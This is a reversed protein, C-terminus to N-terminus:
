PFDLERVEAGSSRMEEEAVHCAVVRGGSEVTRPPVVDCLGKVAAPCRPHFRCGAPPHLPSPVDGQLGAGGGRATPDLKPVAELLARTYPHLPRAYLEAAPALEVISGLYMVAVRDCLHEVVSLDHSIFLYAIGFRRKLDFLLNLVQAQVSVDLASVAEDCVIFRPELALARAIGIRQRQGGSFEHPYRRV